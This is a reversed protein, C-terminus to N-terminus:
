LVVLHVGYVSNYTHMSDTLAAFEGTKKLSTLDVLRELRPRHHPLQRYVSQVTNLAHERLM